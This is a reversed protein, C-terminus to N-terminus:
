LTAPKTAVRPPSSVQRMRQSRQEKKTAPKTILDRDNLYRDLAPTLNSRGPAPGTAANNNRNDSLSNPPGDSPAAVSKFEL